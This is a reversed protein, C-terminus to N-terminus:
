SRDVTALVELTRGHVIFAARVAKIQYDTFVNRVALSGDIWIGTVEAYSVVSNDADLAQFQVTFTDTQDPSDTCNLTVFVSEGYLFAKLKAEFTGDRVSASGGDLLTLAVVLASLIVIAIFISRSGPNGVLGRLFGRNKPLYGQEWAKRVSEPADQLRRERNYYFKLESQQRDDSDPPGGNMQSDRRDSFRNEVM